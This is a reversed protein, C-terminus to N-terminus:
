LTVIQSVAFKSGAAPEAEVGSSEVLREIEVPKTVECSKDTQSKQGYRKLNAIRQLNRM